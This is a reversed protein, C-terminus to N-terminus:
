CGLRKVLLESDRLSTPLSFEVREEVKSVTAVRSCYDLNRDEGQTMIFAVSNGKQDSVIKFYKNPLRHEEDAKPMTHSSGDYIPGTIVFMSDRFRAADRVAEELEKWAGQNLSKSQPTINSLYNLEYWYPSGAFSALPAQHGRDIDLAASAGKYDGKELTESEDLLPDSAWNRGPSAGFNRPTVEYAVWDAFKTKPDNSLAYVHAFVLDNGEPSSPCGLPCHVSLIDANISPTILLFFLTIIAQNMKM